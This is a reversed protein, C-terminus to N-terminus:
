SLEASEDDWKFILEPHTETLEAVSDYTFPWATSHRYKFIVLLIGNELRRGTAVVLSVEHLSLYLSFSRTM